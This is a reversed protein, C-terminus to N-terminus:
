CEYESDKKCCGSVGLWASCRVAARANLQRAPQPEVPETVAHAGGGLGACAAGEGQAATSEGPTGPGGYRLKPENPKM